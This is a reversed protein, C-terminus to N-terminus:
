HCSEVKAKNAAWLTVIKGTHQYFKVCYVYNGVAFKQSIESSFNLSVENDHIDDYEFHFSHICNTKDKSSYFNWELYDGDEFDLASENEALNIVWNITFADGHYWYIVGDEIRPSQKAIPILESM